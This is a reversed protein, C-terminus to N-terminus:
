PHVLKYAFISTLVLGAAFALLELGTLLQVVRSRGVDINQNILTSIIAGLALLGVLAALSYSILQGAFLLSLTQNPPDIKALAVGAAILTTCLTIVQIVLQRIVELVAKQREEGGAPPM